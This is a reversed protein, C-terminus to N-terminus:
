VRVQPSEASLTDDYLVSQFDEAGPLQVFKFEVVLVILAAAATQNLEVAMADPTQVAIILKKDV